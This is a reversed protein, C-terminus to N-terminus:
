KCDNDQIIVTASTIPVRVFADTSSMTLSFVEDGEILLDEFIVVEVMVLCSVPATSNDFVFNVTLESYDM